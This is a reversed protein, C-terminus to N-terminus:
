DHDRHEPTSQRLHEGPINKADLSRQALSTASWRGLEIFGEYCLPFLPTDFSDFSQFLFEVVVAGVAELIYGSVSKNYSSDVCVRDAKPFDERM